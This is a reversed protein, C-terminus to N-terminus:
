NNYHRSDHLPASPLGGVTRVVKRPNTSSESGEEGRKRKKPDLRSTTNSPLKESEPPPQQLSTTSEAVTPDRSVNPTLPIDDEMSLIHSLLIRRFAEHLHDEAPPPNLLGYEPQVQLSLQQMMDAVSALKPHFMETWRKRGLRLFPERSDYWSEKEVKHTRFWKMATAFAQPPGDPTTGKPRATILTFLLVWFISEVDHDPRHYFKPDELPATPRKRGHVTDIDTYTDYTEQGYNEIYVEKARGNLDPMPYFPQHQDASIEGM